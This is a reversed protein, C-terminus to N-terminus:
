PDGVKQLSTVSPTSTMLFCTVFSLLLFLIRVNLLVFHFKSYICGTHQSRFFRILLLVQNESCKIQSLLWPVIISPKKKRIIEISTEANLTLGVAFFTGGWLKDTDLDVYISKVGIFQKSSLVTSFTIKLCQKCAVSIKWSLFCHVM